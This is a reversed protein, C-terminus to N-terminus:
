CNAFVYFLSHIIRFIPIYDVRQKEIYHLTITFDLM